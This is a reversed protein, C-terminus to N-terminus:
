VVFFNYWVIFLFDISKFFLIEKARTFSFGIKQGKVVAFFLSYFLKRQRSLM